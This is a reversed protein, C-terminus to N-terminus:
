KQLTVVLSFIRKDIFAIRPCASRVDNVTSMMANPIIAKTPIKVDISAIFADIVLLKEFIPLLENVMLFEPIFM